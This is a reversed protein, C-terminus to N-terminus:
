SEEIASARFDPRRIHGGSEAIWVGAVLSALCLVSAALAVPLLLGPKKWLVVLGVSSVLASLYMIKSWFHAREEHEHMWEYFGADLYETVPGEKYREYAEEGSGMVFATSVGSIAAILLGAMVTGRNRSVMGWILPILAFGAGLFTVHNLALHIHEPTNMVGLVAVLGLM